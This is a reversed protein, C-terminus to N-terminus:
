RYRQMAKPVYWPMPMSEVDVVNLEIRSPRVNKVRKDIFRLDQRDLLFTYPQDEALIQHAQHWLDMRKNTDVTRRAQQVIKDL